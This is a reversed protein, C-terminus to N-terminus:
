FGILRFWTEPVIWEGGSKIWNGCVDDELLAVVVEPRPHFVGCAYGAMM